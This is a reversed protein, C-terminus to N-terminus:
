LSREKFLQFLYQARDLSREVTLIRVHAVKGTSAPLIAAMTPNM